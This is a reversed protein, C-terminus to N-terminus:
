WLIFVIFASTQVQVKTRAFRQALGKGVARQKDINVKQFCLYQTHEWNQTNQTSWFPNSWSLRISCWPSLDHSNKPTSIKVNMSKFTTKSISYLINGARISTSLSINFLHSLLIVEFFSINILAFLVYFIFFKELKIPEWFFVRINFMCSLMSLFFYTWNIVM